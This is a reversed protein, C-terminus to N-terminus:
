THEQTELTVDSDPDPRQAEDMCTLNNLVVTSVPPAVRWPWSLGDKLNGANRLNVVVSGKAAHNTTVRSAVSSTIRATRNTRPAMLERGM